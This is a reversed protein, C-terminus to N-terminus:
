RPQSLMGIALEARAILGDATHVPVRRARRVGRVEYAFTRLLVITKPIDGDRCADNAAHLTLMFAREVRAPLGLASSQQILATIQAHAAEDPTLGDLPQATAVGLAALLLLITALVRRLM